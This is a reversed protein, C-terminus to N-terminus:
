SKFPYYYRIIIRYNTLHRYKHLYFYYLVIILLIGEPNGALGAAGIQIDKWITRTVSPSFIFCDDAGSGRTGLFYHACKQDVIVFKAIITTRSMLIQFTPLWKKLTQEDGRWEMVTRVPRNAGRLSQMKIATTSRRFGMGGYGDIFVTVNTDGVGFWEDIDEQTASWCVSRMRSPRRKKGFRSMTGNCCFATPCAISFTVKQGSDRENYATVLGQHKYLDLRRRTVAANNSELKINFCQNAPYSRGRIVKPTGIIPESIHEGYNHYPLEHLSLLEFGTHRKISARMERYAKHTATNMYVDMSFAMAAQIDAEERDDEEESDSSMDELRQISAFTEVHTMQVRKSTDLHKQERLFSVSSKKFVATCQERTAGNLYYANERQKRTLILNETGCNVGKKKRMMFEAAEFCTYKLPHKLRFLHTLNNQKVTFFFTSRDDDHAAAAM